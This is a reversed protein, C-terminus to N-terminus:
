LSFSIIHHYNRPSRKNNTIPPIQIKVQGGGGVLADSNSDGGGRLLRVSRYRVCVAAAAPPIILVRNTLSGPQKLREISSQTYIAEVVVNQYKSKKQFIKEKEKDCVRVIAAIM